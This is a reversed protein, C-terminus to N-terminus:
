VAQTLLETRGKVRQFSPHAEGVNLRVKGGTLPRQRQYRSLVFNVYPFGRQLFSVM